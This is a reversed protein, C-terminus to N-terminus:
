GTLIPMWDRPSRTWRDPHRRRATEYLEARRALIALDDRRHRQDPTVYRIAGHRHETNYWAFFRAAWAYARELDAFPL